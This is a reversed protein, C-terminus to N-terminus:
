SFFGSKLKKFKAYKILSALAAAAREPTPYVPIGRSELLNKHAASWHGGTCVAVIPKKGQAETLVDVIEPELTTIQMLTTVLLADVNPDKLVASLAHAYRQANADGTLDIPNGLIVYEPVHPKISDLTSKELKAMRLGSEIIADACLVGFGGGNTIIAIRDGNPLPQSFIKAFDFLQEISRAEITGTQAFMGSYIAPEGALAATHSAVAAAGPITRGAKLAIVPKKRTIAKLMTFLERGRKAGELYLAIARVNKDSAFWSLVDVEDVDIRNGISVFAAFGIGEAAAWDMLAAGLAGSQSVFGIHGPRPRGQRYPPNFITDVGSYPAYIGICNPGLIRLKKNAIKLLEREGSVNGIEAFGASLIIVAKIGKAVCQSLVEAVGSAPIIIIALDPTKPLEKVSPWCRLGLIQDANPNVPWIQGKFSRLLAALVVHGLKQPSRSAGIVAISRPRLFLRSDMFKNEIEHYLFFKEL